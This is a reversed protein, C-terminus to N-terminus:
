PPEEEEDPEGADWDDEWDEDEDDLQEGFVDEPPPSIPGTMLGSPNMFHNIAEPHEIPVSTDTDSDSDADSDSDSDADAGGTGSDETAACAVAIAVLLLSLLSLALLLTRLDSIRKRSAPTGTRKGTTM